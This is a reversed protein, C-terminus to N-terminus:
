LAEGGEQPELGPLLPQTPTKTKPRRGPATPEPMAGETIKLLELFAEPNSIRKIKALFDVADGREGTAFDIWRRGDESVSFSPSCDERFPSCCPSGPDGRLNFLRWLVPVTFKARAEDIRTRPRATATTSV